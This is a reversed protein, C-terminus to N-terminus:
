KNGGKKGTLLYWSLKIEQWLASFYNRNYVKFIGHKSCHAGVKLAVTGDSKMIINHLPTKCYPCKLLSKTSM